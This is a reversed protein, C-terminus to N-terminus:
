NFRVDDGIRLSNDAFKERWISSFRRSLRRRNAKQEQFEHEEAITEEMIMISEDFKMSKPTVPSTCDEDTHGSYLCDRM